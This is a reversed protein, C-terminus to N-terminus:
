FDSFVSATSQPRRFVGGESAAPSNQCDRALSSVNKGIRLFVYRDGEGTVLPHAWTEKEMMRCWGCWDAVLDAIILKRESSAKEIAARLSHLWQIEAGVEPASRAYSSMSIALIAFIIRAYCFLKM